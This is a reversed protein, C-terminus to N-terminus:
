TFQTVIITVHNVIRVKELVDKLDTTTEIKFKPLSVNVKLTYMKSTASEWASPEKLKEELAALSDVKKPLIIIFSAEHGEYPLELLQLHHKHNYININYFM